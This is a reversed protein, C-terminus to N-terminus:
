YEPDAEALWRRPDFEDPFQNGNGFVPASGSGSTTFTGGSSGITQEWSTAIGFEWTESVQVIYLDGGCNYWFTYHFTVSSPGEDYGDETGGLFTCSAQAAATTLFMAVVFLASRFWISM